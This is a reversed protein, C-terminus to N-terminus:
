TADLLDSWGPAKLRDVIANWEGTDVLRAHRPRYERGGIHVLEMGAPVPETAAHALEVMRPPPTRHPLASTLNNREPPLAQAMRQDVARNTRRREITVEILWQVPVLRRHFGVRHGLIFAGLILAVTDWVTVTLPNM